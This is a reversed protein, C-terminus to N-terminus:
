KKTKKIAKSEVAFKIREVAANISNQIQLSNRSTENKLRARAIFLSRSTVKMEAIFKKEVRDIKRLMFNELNESYRNIVQTTKPLKKDRKELWSQNGVRKIIETISVRLIPNRSSLIEKCAQEVEKSLEDDIRRWDTSGTKGSKIQADPLHQEFWDSDNRLLWLYLTNATDMLEQRTSTSHRKVVELWSQRHRSLLESFTERPNRRREYGQITRTNPQNMPLDLRIAHRVILLDSVQLSRAIAAVSLSLNMWLEELTNEWTKGYEKISRYTFRAKESQDPGIRQYVFGCDCTFIGVPKGRKKKVTNDLIECNKIKLEGYHNSAKNLCPYPPDGFPKYEVFSTFFEEATVGLFHMLLLHRIPHQIVNSRGKEIMKALWGKQASVVTCGLTELVRSPFHKNFSELLPANRIRGNYYAYGRKLLLNYYRARLAGDELCLNEQTLLWEANKALYLFLKHEPDNKSLFCPPEVNLSNDAYHFICSSERELSILSNQLFCRHEVCVLIGAPQHIRHWYTEGFDKRDSAVCLPCFRLYEPFRVQPINLALRMRMHNEKAFKMESRLQRAREISVFPEHFPLLTNRNIFGDTTFNNPPFSSLFDELRTPFDVSASFTKSGFLEKITRKKNPYDARRGYRACASYLLEDPYPTPFFGIM